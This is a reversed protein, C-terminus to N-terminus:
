TNFSSFQHTMYQIQQGGFDWINAILNKEKDRPDKFSWQKVDIGLTSESHSDLSFKPNCLMEMLSSKGAEPEGVIILKAENLEGEGQSEM